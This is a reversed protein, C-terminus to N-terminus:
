AHAGGTKRARIIADGIARLAAVPVALAKSDPSLKLNVSKMGHARAYEIAAEVQAMVHRTDECDDPMNTIRFTSFGEVSSRTANEMDLAYGLAELHSLAAEHHGNYGTQKRRRGSDCLDLQVSSRASLLSATYHAIRHGNLDYGPYTTRVEVTFPGVAGAENMVQIAKEVTIGPIKKM